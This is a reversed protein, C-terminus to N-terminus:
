DVLRAVNLGDWLPLLLTDLRASEVAARNYARLHELEEPLSYKRGGLKPDGGSFPNDESSDAVLARRLVNDALILGGPKLIRNSSGPQSGDLIANLYAPYGDKQADIFILDYPEAPNLEPLTKLADGEIIEVNEVGYKAFAERSLAAFEGSFELGTVRGGPGVAHAWVLSSYGAYVGVELVRRAGVARALFLLAQAQFNSIMYNSDARSTDVRDHYELMHAPLASSHQESYRTVRETVAENPYLPTVGKM